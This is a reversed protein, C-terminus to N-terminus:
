DQVNLLKNKAIKWKEIEGDIEFTERKILIGILGGVAAGAVPFIFAIAPTHDRPPNTALEGEGGNVVVVGVTIVTLGIGTGVGTGMLVNHGISRKTKIYFIKKVTFSDTKGHHAIKITSDPSYLLNGKALKKYDMDYVRIFVRKPPNQKQGRISNFIGVILLLTFTIKAM